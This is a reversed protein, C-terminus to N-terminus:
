RRTLDAAGAIKIMKIVHASGVHMNTQLYDVM